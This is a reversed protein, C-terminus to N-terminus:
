EGTDFGDGHHIMCLVYLTGALEGNDGEQFTFGNTENHTVGNGPFAGYVNFAAVPEDGIPCNAITIYQGVAPDASPTFVRTAKVILSNPANTHATAALVSVVSFGIVSVALTAILLLKRM